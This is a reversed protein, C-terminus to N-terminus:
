FTLALSSEETLLSKRCYGLYSTILFKSLVLLFAFSSIFCLSFKKFFKNVIFTIFFIFRLLCQVKVGVKTTPSPPLCHPNLLHIFHFGIQSHRTNFMMLYKLLLTLFIEPSPTRLMNTSPVFIFDELLFLSMFASCFVKIYLASNDSLFHSPWWIGSFIHINRNEM